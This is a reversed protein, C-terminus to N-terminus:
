GARQRQGTCCTSCWGLSAPRPHKVCPAGPAERELFKARIGSLKESGDILVVEVTQKWGGGVYWIHKVFEANEGQCVSAIPEDRHQRWESIIKAGLIGM